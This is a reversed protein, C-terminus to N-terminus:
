AVGEGSRRRLEAGALLGRLTREARRANMGTLRASDEDSVEYVLFRGEKTDVVAQASRWGEGHRQYEVRTEGRAHHVYEDFPRGERPYLRRLVVTPDHDLLRARQFRPNYREPHETKDLLAQWLLAREVPAPFRALERWCDKPHVRM